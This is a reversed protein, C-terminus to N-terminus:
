NKVENMEDIDESVGLEDFLYNIETKIECHLQAMLLLKAIKSLYEKELNKLEEDRTKSEIKLKEINEKRKELNEDIM